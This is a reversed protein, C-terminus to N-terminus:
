EEAVKPKTARRRAFNKKEQSDTSRSKKQNLSELAISHAEDILKTKRKRSLCTREPITCNPQEMMIKLARIWAYESFLVIKGQTNPKIRKVRPENETHKRLLSDAESNWKNGCHARVKIINITIGNNKLSRLCSDLFQLLDSNSGDYGVLRERKQRIHVFDWVYYSDTHISVHKSTNIHSLGVLIAHM